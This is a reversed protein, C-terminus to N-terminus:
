VGWLDRHRAGCTRVPIFRGFDALKWRLSLACGRSKSSSGLRSCCRAAYVAILISMPHWRGTRLRMALGAGIAVAATFWPAGLMTVRWIANMLSRSRHAGKLYVAINWDFNAFRTHATLHRM